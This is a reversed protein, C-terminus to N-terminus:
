SKEGWIKVVGDSGGSAWWGGSKGRRDTWAVCGAVGDRGMEDDHRLRTIVEGSLVDFAFIQGGQAGEVSDDKDVEGGCIVVGENAGLTSRLRLSGNQYGEAKYTKLPIGTELDMLVHRDALLTVLAARGDKTRTVSTVPYGLIDTTLQGM